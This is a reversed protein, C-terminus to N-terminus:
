HEGESGNGAEKDAAAFEAEIEMAERIIQSAPRTDIDRGTCRDKYEAFSVFTDQAM